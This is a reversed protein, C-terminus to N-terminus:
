HLARQKNIVPKVQSQPEKHGPEEKILRPLNAPIKIEPITLSDVTVTSRM